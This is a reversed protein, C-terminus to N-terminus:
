AAPFDVFLVFGSASLRRNNKKFIKHDENVAMVEQM